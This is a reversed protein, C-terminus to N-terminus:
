EPKKDLQDLANYDFFLGYQKDNFKKKSLATRLDRYAQAVAEWHKREQDKLPENYIYDELIGLRNNIGRIILYADDANDCNKVRISYEYLENEIGRLGNKKLSKFISIENVPSLNKNDLFKNLSAEGIDITANIRDIAQVTNNIENIELKSATFNRAEELTSKIIRSNNKLNHAMTFLWELIVPKSTRLSDGIGNVSSDIKDKALSLSEVLNENSALIENSLIGDMDDKFIINSLKYMTDKIAFIVLQAYNVSDRINIIDDNTLLQYDILARVQDFIDSNDMMTLIEYITLATLEASDLGIEVLKSDFEISYKVLRIKEDTNLIIVADSPTIIPSIRIGFLQKDTNLTYIVDMCKNNTFVNNIADKLDQIQNLSPNIIRDEDKMYLISNFASELRRINQTLLEIDM